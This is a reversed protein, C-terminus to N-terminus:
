YENCFMLCAYDTSEEDHFELNCYIDGSPTHYRGLVHGDRHKLDNDNADKDDQVLEGWDGANFRRIAEYVAKATEENEAVAENLGRTITWNIARTPKM